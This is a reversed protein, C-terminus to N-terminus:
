RGGLANVEGRVSAPNGYYRTEGSSSRDSRLSNTVWVTANGSSSLDVTADASRLEAAEYNGSSSIRVQQSRVEGALTVNGSSTMRADLQYAEIRMMEVDGSSNVVIRVQDGRVEGVTIDGSSNIELAIDNGELREASIDGSSNVVLETLSPVTVEVQMPHRTNLISIGGGGDPRVDVVLTDGEVDTRLYPLVNDDASAVVRQEQGRSVIVDASSNLRIATFAPLSREETGLVGSGRVTTQDLVTGDCAALGLTIVLLMALIGKRFM